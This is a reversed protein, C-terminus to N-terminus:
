SPWGAEIDIALVAEATTAANIAAIVDLEFDFCAQVHAQVADGAAIVQASTLTIEGDASKWRHTASPNKEATRYKGNLLTKSRDDTAITFGGVSIGGCEVEWRRAALEAKREAKLAAMFAALEDASMGARVDVLEWAEVWNGAADQVPVLQRAVQLRGPVPMPFPFVPDVGLFDLVSEGWEAPFATNPNAQVLADRSSVVGTTRNRYNM